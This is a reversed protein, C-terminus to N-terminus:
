VLCHGHLTGRGQEENGRAFADCRGYMGIGKSCNRKYDWGLLECVVQMAAQYDLSCAGPYKIRKKSRLEFDSICDSESCDVDPIVIEKGQNAYMRVRFSCEDDPTVTFFISHPGFYDSLAYGKKRAEKAAEATHGLVKCSTTVSKLFSAATSYTELPEDSKQMRNLEKAAKYVNGLQFNQYERM